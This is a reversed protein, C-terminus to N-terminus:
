LRGLRLAKWSWGRSLVVKILALKIDNTNFYTESVKGFSGDARRGYTRTRNRRYLQGRQWGVGVSADFADLAGGSSFDKDVSRVTCTPAHLRMYIRFSASMGGERLKSGWAEDGMKWVAVLDAESESVERILWPQDDSNSALLDSRLEASSCKEVDLGEYLPGSLWNFLGV